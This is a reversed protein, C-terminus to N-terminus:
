MELSENRCSCLSKLTKFFFIKQQFRKIDEEVYLFLSGCFFLLHNDDDPAKSRMLWIYIYCFSLKLYIESIITITKGNLFNIEERNNHTRLQQIKRVSIREIRRADAELFDCQIFVILCRSFHLCHNCSIEINNKNKQTREVSSLKNQFSFQRWFVKSKLRIIWSMLYGLFLLMLEWPLPWLLLRLLM